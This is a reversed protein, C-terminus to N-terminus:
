NILSIIVSTNDQSKKVNIAYLVLQKAIETLNIKNKIRDNIFDCVERDSMVDFLGDSAQVIYKVNTNPFRYIDPEATIIQKLNKDGFSRSMALNGNVRGYQVFGGKSEIRMKEEPDDPKHDESIRDVVGNKRYLIARSDGTNALYFTNTKRNYFLVNATSGDNSSNQSLFIRDLQKFTNALAPIPTKNQLNQIFINYFHTKLFTSCKNGGHGDYVCSIYHLSPNNFISLRDEQYNRKGINSFFGHVIQNKNNSFNHLVHFMKKKNGIINIKKKKLLLRLEKITIEHFLEYKQIKFKKKIFTYKQKSTTKNKPINIKYKQILYEVDKKLPKKPLKNLYKIIKKKMLEM